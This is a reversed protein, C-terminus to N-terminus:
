ASRGPVEISEVEDILSQISDKIESTEDELDLEDLFEIIQSLVGVADDRITERLLGAKPVKREPVNLTIEMVNFKEPIDPKDINSLIEAADSKAQNADSGQLSEPTNDFSDQLENGLDELSACANRFADELRKTQKTFTM